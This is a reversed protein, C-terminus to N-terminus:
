QNQKLKFYFIHERFVTEVLDFRIFDALLSIVQRRPIHSLRVCRNLTIEGYKELLRLICQERENCRIMVDKHDHRWIDLHVPSALITEDKIRIYAKPKKDEDVAYVPKHQSEAVSVELVDKGDVKYIQSDLTVSPRCYRTAAVEIMYIEEASRIGAIKGNDKVGVLLRGGETNSFASLSRAIKCADTIAFKFDQHVHEGETILQLIHNRNMKMNWICLYQFYAYKVFMRCPLNHGDAGGCNVLLCSIFGSPLPRLPQRCVSLM